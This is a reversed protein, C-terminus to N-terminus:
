REGQKWSLMHYITKVSPTWGLHAELKGRAEGGVQNWGESSSAQKETLVLAV